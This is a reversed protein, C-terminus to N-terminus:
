LFWRCPPVRRRTPATVLIPVDTSAGDERSRRGDGLGLPNVRDAVRETAVETPLLDRALVDVVVKPGLFSDHTTVIWSAREEVGAIASRGYSLTLTL